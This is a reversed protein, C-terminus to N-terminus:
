REIAHTDRNTHAQQDAPQWDFRTVIGPGQPSGKM